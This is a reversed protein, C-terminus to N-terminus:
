VREHRTSTTPEPAAPVANENEKLSILFDKSVAAVGTVKPKTVINRDIWEQLIQVMLETNVTLTNNGKM